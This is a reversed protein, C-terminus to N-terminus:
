ARSNCGGSEEVRRPSCLEPLERNLQLKVIPPPKRPVLSQANSKGLSPHSDRRPHDCGRPRPCLRLRVARSDKGHLDTSIHMQPGQSWRACPLCKMRTLAKETRACVMLHAEPGLIPAYGGSAESSHEAPTLVREEDSEGEQGTHAGHGKEPEPDWVRVDVQIDM